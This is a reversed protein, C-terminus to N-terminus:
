YKCKMHYLQYPEDEIIYEYDPNIVKKCRYCESDGKIKLEYTVPNYTSARIFFVDSDIFDELFYEKESLVSVKRILSDFPIWDQYKISCRILEGESIMNFKEKSLCKKNFFRKRFWWQVLVDNKGLTIIEGIENDYQSKIIFFKGSISRM